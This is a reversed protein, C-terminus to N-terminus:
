GITKVPKKKFFRKLKSWLLAPIIILFKAIKVLFIGILGLLGLKKVALGTILAAIGYKAVKDSTPSFDKYRKGPIYDLSALIKQAHYKNADISAKPSIMDLSFFGERGLAYTNYNIMPSDSGESELWLSWLLRHTKVSYNPKEMWERILLTPFGEKKRRSNDAETSQKISALMDDANWRKAEDDKIYGSFIYDIKILWQSDPDSSLVLGVLNDSKHNGFSEMLEGAQKKPVFLYGQPLNFYAQGLLSFEVPGKKAADVAQQYMTNIRAIKEERTTQTSEQSFASHCFLTVSSFIVIFRLWKM